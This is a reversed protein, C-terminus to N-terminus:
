TQLNFTLVNKDSPVIREHSAAVEFTYSIAEASFVDNPIGCGLVRGDKLMVVEDCIESAM